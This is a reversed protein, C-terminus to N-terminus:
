PLTTPGSSVSTPGVVTRKESNRTAHKVHFMPPPSDGTQGRRTIVLRQRLSLSGGGDGNVTRPALVLPM